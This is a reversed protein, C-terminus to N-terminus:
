AFIRSGGCKIALSPSATLLPIPVQADENEAAKQRQYRRQDTRRQNDEKNQIGQGAVGCLHQHARIGRRIRDPRQHDLEPQILRQVIAVDMPDLPHQRAIEAVAVGIARRDGSQNCLAKRQCNRQRDHGHGHRDHQSQGGADIRRCIVVLEAIHTHHRQRLEAYRKGVEPEGDQQDQQERHLQM